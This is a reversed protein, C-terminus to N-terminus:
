SKRRITIRSSPPGIDPAPELNELQEPDPQGPIRVAVITAGNHIGNIRFTAYPDLYKKRELWFRPKRYFLWSVVEGRSDQNLNVIPSGFHKRNYEAVFVHFFGALQYNEDVTSNVKRLGQEGTESLSIMFHVLMKDKIHKADYARHNTSKAYYMMRKYIKEPIEMWFLYTERLLFPLLFLFPTTNFITKMELGGRPIRNIYKVKYGFEKILFFIAVFGAAGLSTIFLTYLFEKQFFHGSDNWRHMVYLLWVHLIGLIFFGIQFGLYVGIINNVQVLALIGIMWFLLISLIAYRRIFKKEGPEEEHVSIFFSIGSILAILIM